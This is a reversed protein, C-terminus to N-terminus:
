SSPLLSSVSDTAFGVLSEPLLGLLLTVV